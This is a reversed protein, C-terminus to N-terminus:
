TLNRSSRTPGTAGSSRWRAKWVCGSRERPDMTAAPGDTVAVTGAPGNATMLVLGVGTVPLAQACAVVLRHPINPTAAAPGAMLGALIYAM